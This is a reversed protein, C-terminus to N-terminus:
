RWGATGRAPKRFGPIRTSHVGMATFNAIWDTSTMSTDVTGPQQAALFHNLFNTPSTENGFVEVPRFNLNGIIASLNEWKPEAPDAPPNLPHAAVHCIACSM